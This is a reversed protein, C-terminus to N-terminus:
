PLITVRLADSFTRSKARCSLQFYWTSGPAFASLDIRASATGDPGTDVSVLRKVPPALCLLGTSLPVHAADSSMMFVGKVSHPAGTVALSFDNTALTPEGLYDIRPVDRGAERCYSAPADILPAFHANLRRGAGDM